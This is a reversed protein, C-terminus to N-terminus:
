SGPREEHGIEDDFDDFIVIQRALDVLRMLRGKEHEAHEAGQVARVLELIVPGFSLRM